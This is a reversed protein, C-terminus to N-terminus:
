EGVLSVDGLERAVKDIEAPKTVDLRVPQVGALQASAPIARPRMSKRAGGALLAKAFAL